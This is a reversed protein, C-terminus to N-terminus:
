EEEHCKNLGWKWAKKNIKSRRIKLGMKWDIDNRGRRWWWTWWWLYFGNPLDEINAWDM